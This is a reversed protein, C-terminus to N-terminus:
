HVNCKWVFTETYSSLFFITKFRKNDKKKKPSICKECFNLDKRKSSMKLGNEKEHLASSSFNETWVKTIGFESTAGNFDHQKREAKKVKEV